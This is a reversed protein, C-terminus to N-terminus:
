GGLQVLPAERASWAVGWAGDGEEVGVWTRQAYYDTTTGPFQDAIPRIVNLGTDFSFRPRPVQFPFAVFYAHTQGLDRLLRYHFEIRKVGRHLVIEGLLEPSGCLSGRVLLSASVPGRRHTPPVVLRAREIGGDAVGRAFPEGMGFGAQTDVLERGLEKDRISKVIGTRSDVTVRYYENELTGAESRLTDGYTPVDARRVVRYSRYGVAPLGRATFRISWAAEPTHAAFGARQTPFRTPAWGNPDGCLEHAVVEGTSADALELRGDVLEAPLNHLERGEALGCVPYPARPDGVPPRVLHMPMGAPRPSAFPVEVVDTREHGLANFVLIHWDEKELAVHDAIANASKVLVDHASAAAHHAYLSKERRHADEAWGFPTSLGWAHEDFKLVDRYAQGLRAEPYPYTGITSAMVAFREGAALMEKARRNTGLDEATSTAGVPYDTDPWHGRHVPLTVPLRPELAACFMSDTAMVLHPYAWRQNWARITEAFALRPPANDRRGGMVCYRAVDYPYGETDLRALAAPLETLNTDPAGGAGQRHLFVLVDRGDQTEWRYAVPCDRPQVVAHDFSRHLSRGGGADARQAGVYGTSFYDPVGPVLWRVGADALVTALSWAMGPIDNHQAVRIPIGHRRKLEFAPYLLRAAEEAGLLDSVMNAWLACVEIQGARCARAFRSVAAAPRNQTYHWAIWSQEVVYRFRTEEPWTETEECWEVAQDLFHLYEEMVSSPLDTYGPDFHSLQVVYVTWHRQPLWRVMHEHLVRGAGRLRLTLSTPERVDPVYLRHTSEGPGVPDLRHETTTGGATVLLDLSGTPGPSRLHLDLAQLLSGNEVKFYVTPDVATIAPQVSPDLTAM